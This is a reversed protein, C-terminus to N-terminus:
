EDQEPIQANKTEVKGFSVMKEIETMVMVNNKVFESLVDRQEGVSRESNM